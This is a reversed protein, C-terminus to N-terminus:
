VREDRLDLTPFWMGVMWNELPDKTYQVLLQQDADLAADVVFTLTLHRWRGRAEGRSPRAYMQTPHHHRHTGVVARHSARDFGLNLPLAALAAPAIALFVVPERRELLDGPQQDHPASLESQRV